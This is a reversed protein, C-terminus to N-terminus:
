DGLLNWAILFAGLIAFAITFIYGTSTVQDGNIAIGLVNSMTAGLFIGGITGMLQRMKGRRKSILYSSAKEVHSASVSDAKGRKSNRISEVVLESIYISIYTKLLNFAKESFPKHEISDLEQNAKDLLEKLDDKNANEQSKDM